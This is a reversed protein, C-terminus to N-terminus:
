QVESVVVVSAVNRQEADCEGSVSWFLQLCNMLYTHFKEDVIIWVNIVHNEM